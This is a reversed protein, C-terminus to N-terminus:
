VPVRARIGTGPYGPIGDRYISKKGDEDDDDDCVDGDGDSDTDLKDSNPVMPCNDEENLVGVFYLM